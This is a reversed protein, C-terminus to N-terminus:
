VPLGGRYNHVMKLRDNFNEEVKKILFGNAAYTYKVATWYKRRPTNYFLESLIKNQANYKKFLRGQLVFNEYTDILVIRGYKDLYNVFM